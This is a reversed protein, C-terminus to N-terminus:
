INLAKIYVHVHTFASLSKSHLCAHIYVSLDGKTCLTTLSVCNGRKVCRAVCKPARGPKKCFMRDVGFCESLSLLKMNGNNRKQGEPAPDDMTENCISFCDQEIDEIIYGPRRCVRQLAASASACESVLSDVQTENFLPRNEKSEECMLIVRLCQRQSPTACFNETLFDNLM